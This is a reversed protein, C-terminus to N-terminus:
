NSPTSAANQFRALFQPYNPTLPLGQIRVAKVEAITAEIFRIRSHDGLHTGDGFIGLGHDRTYRRWFADVTDLDYGAAAALYIGLYDAQRETDLIRTRNKGISRLLGRKVHESDLMEAHGLIDHSLEHGMVFGLGDDIDAYRLMALSVAVTKGDADANFSSSIDVQIDSACGRAGALHVAMPRGDRLIGLDVPGAAFAADLTDILQTYGTAVAKHEAPAQQELAKGNVSQLVDGVKLGAAEAPAGAVLASIAPGQDLHYLQEAAVRFDARYQGADQVVWGPLNTQHSCFPLGHTQLRYGITAARQDAATLAELSAVTESVPTDTARGVEPALVCGMGVITSVGCRAWFSPRWYRPFGYRLAIM